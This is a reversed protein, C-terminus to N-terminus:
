LTRPRSCLVDTWDACSILCRAPRSFPNSFPFSGFLSSRSHLVPQLPLCLVVLPFHSSTNPRGKRMSEQKAIMKEAVARSFTYRKASSRFCKGCREKQSYRHQLQFGTQEDPELFLENQGAAPPIETARRTYSTTVAIRANLMVDQKLM